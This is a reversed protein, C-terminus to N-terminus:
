NTAEESEERTEHGDIKLLCKTEEDYEVVWRERGQTLVLYRNNTEDKALLICGIDYKKLWLRSNLPVTEM